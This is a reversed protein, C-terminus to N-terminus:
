PTTSPRNQKSPPDRQPLPSPRWTQTVSWPSSIVWVKWNAAWPFSAVRRLGTDLFIDAMSLGRLCICELGSVLCESRLQVSDKWCCTSGEASMFRLINLSVSVHQAHEAVSLAWSADRCALASSRKHGQLHTLTPHLVLKINRFYYLQLQVTILTNEAGASTRNFIIKRWGYTLLRSLFRLLSPCIKM